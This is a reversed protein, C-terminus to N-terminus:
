SRGPNFAAREGFDSCGTCVCYRIREILRKDNSLATQQAIMRERIRHMLQIDQQDQSKFPVFRMGERQSAEAIAEADNYDHKNGKRYAVVYQPAIAKVEHGAKTLERCWYHCSGCAEMVVICPELQSFYSLMQHRRLKKKRLVRGSQNMFVLHFVSKAIDLGITVKSM